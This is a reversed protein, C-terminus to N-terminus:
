PKILKGIAAKTAAQTRTVAKLKVRANDLHFDVTRKTMGLIAAVETSTKGQAVLTLTQVERANLNIGKPWVAERAVRAPRAEIIAALLEFDVPKV